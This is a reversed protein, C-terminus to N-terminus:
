TQTIHGKYATTISKRNRSNRRSFEQSSTLKKPNVEIIEVCHGVYPETFVDWSSLLSSAIITKFQIDRICFDADDLVNLQEWDRKLQILHKVIDDGDSTCKRFLTHQISIAIQYDKTKHIAQLGQWIKFATNLRTVHVMQDKSINNTILIQAYVDNTDWLDCVEPNTNPLGTEHGSFSWSQVPGLGILVAFKWSWLLSFVTTQDEGTYAM